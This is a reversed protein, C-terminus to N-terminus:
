NKNSRAKMGIKSSKRSKRQLEWLFNSGNDSWVYKCSVGRSCAFRRWALLFQDTSADTCLELHVARTVMCTMLCVYGDKVSRGTYKVRLPGFFDLATNEFPPTYPETRVKPLEGMKQGLLPRRGTRCYECRAAVSRLLDRVGCIWLGESQIEAKVRRYGAHACKNHYYQAVLRNVTGDKPLIVPNRVKEPVTDGRIRGNVKVLNDREDVIPDLKEYRKDKFDVDEQSVRFIHFKAEEMEAATISGPNPKDKRDSSQIRLDVATRRVAEEWNTSDGILTEIRRNSINERQQETDDTDESSENQIAHVSATKM